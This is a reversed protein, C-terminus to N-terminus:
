FFYAVRSCFPQGSSPDQETSASEPVSAPYQDAATESPSPIKEEGGTIRMTSGAGVLM